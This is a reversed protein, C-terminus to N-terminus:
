KQSVLYIGAIILMIGVMSSKQDGRSNFLGTLMTTFIINFAQICPLTVSMDTNGIIYMYTVASTVFIFILCGIYGLDSYDMKKVFSDGNTGHLYALYSVIVLFYFSHEMCVLETTTYKKLLSKRFTPQMSWLFALAMILLLTKVEM